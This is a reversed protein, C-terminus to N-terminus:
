KKAPNELVQYIIFGNLSHIIGNPGIVNSQGLERVVCNDFSGPMLDSANIAAVANMSGQQYTRGLFQMRNKTKGTGDLKSLYMSMRTTGSMLDEWDDSMPACKTTVLFGSGGMDIPVNPCSWLNSSYLTSAGDDPLVDTTLIYANVYYAATDHYNYDHAETNADMRKMYDADIMLGLDIARQLAEDTPILITHYGSGISPASGATKAHEWYKKFLSHRPEAQLSDTYLYRDITAYLSWPTGGIFNNGNVEIDSPFYLPASEDAAVYVNGNLYGDYTPDKYVSAYTGAAPQQTQFM